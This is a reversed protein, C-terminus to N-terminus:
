SLSDIAADMVAIVSAHTTLLADNFQTIREYGRPEIQDTVADLAAQYDTARFKTARTITATSIAGIICYRCRGGPMEQELDEKCWQDPTEILKRAAKLIELAESM